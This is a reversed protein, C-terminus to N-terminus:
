TVGGYKKIMEKAYNLSCRQFYLVSNADIRQFKGEFSKLHAWDSPQSTDGSYYYEHKANKRYVISSHPIYNERMLRERDYNSEYITSATDELFQLTNTYALDHKNDYDLFKVCTALHEPAWFDDQDIHAIYRCEPNREKILKLGYNVANYGLVNWEPSGIPFSSEPFVRDVVSVTFRKDNKVLNYVDYFETIDYYSNEGKYSIRDGDLTIYCHWDKYKQGLLSPISVEKLWDTGKYVAM